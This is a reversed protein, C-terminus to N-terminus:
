VEEPVCSDAFQVAPESASDPTALYQYAIPVVAPPVFVAPQVSLPVLVVAVLVPRVSM